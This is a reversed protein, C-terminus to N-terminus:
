PKVLCEAECVLRLNQPKRLAARAAVLAARTATPHVRAFDRGADALSDLRDPLEACGGALIMFGILLLAGLARRAAM